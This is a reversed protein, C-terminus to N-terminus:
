LVSVREIFIKCAEWVNAADEAADRKFVPVACNHETDKREAPKEEDKPDKAYSVETWKANNFFDLVNKEAVKSENVNRYKKLRRKMDALNYHTGAVVEEDLNKVRDVLFSDDQQLLIVSSPFMAENPKFWEEPFVKVPNEEDAEEPEYEKRAEANDPDDPDPQTVAKLFVNQCDYHYRPYGDLIYGRNRCDNEQLRM